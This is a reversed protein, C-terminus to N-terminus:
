RKLISKDRAYLFTSGNNRTFPPAPHAESTRGSDPPNRCVDGISEKTESYKQALVLRHEIGKTIAECRNRVGLKQYLNKAHNKVTMQSIQLAKSIEKNTKGEYIAQLIELERRTLLTSTETNSWDPQHASASVVRAFASHLYPVVLELTFSHREDLHAPINAFCFYSGTTGHIDRQGHGATNRIGHRSFCDRLDSPVSPESGNMLQPRRENVWATIMPCTMHGEASIVYRLCDWPFNWSLVHLPVLGGKGVQGIAGLFMGHPFLKQFHGRLMSVFEDPTSLKLMDEALELLLSGKQGLTSSSARM